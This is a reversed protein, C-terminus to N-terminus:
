SLVQRYVEMTRRVMRDVTFREMVTRRAADGVRRAFASDDLLQRVAAAIAQPTNDVLLGNEGHRVIEPLGGVGSAVVPVGASMALLAGSGLGEPEFKVNGRPAQDSEPIPEYRLRFSGSNKMVIKMSVLREFAFQIMARFAGEDCHFAAFCDRVPHPFYSREVNKTSGPVRTYGPM